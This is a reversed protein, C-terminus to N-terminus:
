MGAMVWGEWNGRGCNRMGNGHRRAESLTSGGGGVQGGRGPAELRELILLL